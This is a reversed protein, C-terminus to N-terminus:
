YSRWGGLTPVRGISGSGPRQSRLINKSLEQRAGENLPGVRQDVAHLIAADATAPDHIWVRVSATSAQRELGVSSGPRSFGFSNRADVARSVGGLLMEGRDPVSVSINVGFSSVVPQQVTVNQGYVSHAMMVLCGAFTFFRM